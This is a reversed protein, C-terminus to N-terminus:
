DNYNQVPEVNLFSHIKNRYRLLLDENIINNVPDGINESPISKIASIALVFFGNNLAYFLNETMTMLTMGLPPNAQLIGEVGTEVMVEAILRQGFERKELQLDVENDIKEVYNPNEILSGNSYLLKGKILDNLEEETVTLKILDETEKYRILNVRGENHRIWIDM